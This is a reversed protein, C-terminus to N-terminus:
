KLLTMPRVQVGNPTELRYLYMGSALSGAEFSAEHFGDNMTGDILVKVVRGLMDHVTLKVQMSEPLSFVITTVPNFPNPYNAKLTPTDPLVDDLANISGVISFTVTAGGLAGDPDNRFFPTGSLLFNDGPTPTWSQYNPQTAPTFPPDLDVKCENPSGDQICDSFVAYPRFSEQDRVGNQGPLTFKVLDIARTRGDSTDTEGTENNQGFDITNARINYSPAGLENLNIVAGDVIPDHEPIVEDADADILTYNSIRPGIVTFDVSGATYQSPDASGSPTGTVAYSGVPFIAPSNYNGSNLWDLVYPEGDGDTENIPANANGSLLTINLNIAVTEILSGPDQPNARLALNIPLAVLDLTDGPQIPDYRPNIPNNNEDVLTFSIIAAANPDGVTITFTESDSLGGEDTVTVTVSTTGVNDQGPTWSIAGSSADITIGADTSATDLSFTLTNEPIDPDSAVATETFTAGVEVTADAIPQLEPPLNVELVNINFTASGSIMNSSTATVTVPYIGPGQEETPTWTIVGTDPDIVMGADVSAQDISFTLTGGSSDTADIDVTIETQEDITQDGPNDVVVSDMPMEAVTFTAELPPNNAGNGGGQSYPTATLTYTGPGLMRSVYDGNDDGFAAFFPLDSDTIAIPDGDVVENGMDDVLSFVVSQACGDTTFQVNFRMAEEASITLGDVLVGVVADTDANVYSLGNASVYELISFAGDNGSITVSLNNDIAGRFRDVVVVFDATGTTAGRDHSITATEELPDGAGQAAIGNTGSFDAEPDADGVPYGAADFLYLDYDADTTWNLTAVLTENLNISANLYYDQLATDSMFSARCFDHTDEPFSFDDGAQTDFYDSTYTEDAANIPLSSRAAALVQQSAPSSKFAAGAALKEQRKDAVTNAIRNLAEESLVIKDFSADEGPGVQDTRNQAQAWSGSFAFFLILLTLTIRNLSPKRKCYSSVVIM